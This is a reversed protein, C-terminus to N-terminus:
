SVRTAMRHCSVVLALAFWFFIGVKAGLAIADATGFLFYAILGVALGGVLSRQEPPATTHSRILLAAAGFWLGLYAILGPLGLDLAAQLLHNHAHAIDTDPSTLFTPYLIPLVRRFMNMGMGTFPFDGIATIPRSWLDLRGAVDGSLNSGVSQIVLHRAPIAVLIATAAIALAAIRPRRGLWLLWCFSALLLALWAGRSQTLVLTTTTLLLLVAHLVRNARRNFTLALQIPIFMILAGAVANPQFGETQGPVGRILQPLKAILPQLANVKTIWNTGLIGVVALLAGALAFCRWAISLSRESEVLRVGAFFIAYGLLVGAIKPLSFAIDPTAYVSVLVMIAMLALSGNLPTLDVPEDTVIWSVIWIVPLIFLIPVLRM